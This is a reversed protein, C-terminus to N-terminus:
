HYQYFEDHTLKEVHFDEDQERPKQSLEAQASKVEFKDNYDILINFM